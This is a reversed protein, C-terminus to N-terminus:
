LFVGTSQTNVGTGAGGVLNFAAQLPASPDAGIRGMHCGLVPGLNPLIAVKVDAGNSQLAAAAPPLVTAGRAAGNAIARRDTARLGAAEFAADPRVLHVGTQGLPVLLAADAVDPSVTM